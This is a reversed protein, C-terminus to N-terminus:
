SPVQCGSSGVNELERASIDRSQIKVVSTYSFYM